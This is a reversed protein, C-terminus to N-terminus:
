NQVDTCGVTIQKCIVSKDTLQARLTHNETVIDIWTGQSPTADPTAILRPIISKRWRNTWLYSTKVVYEIFRSILCKWTTTTCFLPFFHVFSRHHVHLTTTSIFGTAKKRKRQRGCRQIKIDKNDRRSTSIALISGSLGPQSATRIKAISKLLANSETLSSSRDLLSFNSGSFALWITDCNEQYYVFAYLGCCGSKRTSLLLYPSFM